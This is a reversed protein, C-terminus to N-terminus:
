SRRHSSTLARQYVSETDRAIREWDYRARVLDGVSLLDEMPRSERSLALTLKHSLDRVDGTRFVLGHPQEDSLTVAEVNEPIDSVITFRDHALAELLAIPLGELTSPQVFVAANQLLWAKEAGYRPGLLLVREDRQALEEVERMYADSHSSPGVIALRFESPVHRFAEILTHAQKEPVIRGLHLVFRGPELGPVPAPEDLESLNVGNPIYTTSTNYHSNLFRELEQSVAITQNPVTAAVRAAVRLTQRATAGWKERRWDLGHVTAVTPVGLARTALSLITPGTAHFHIVDFRRRTVAHMTSLMTHSLAELHKTNIQPLTIQEVGDIEELKPDCYASRGYVSVRHGRKALERSLQEVAVEVGGYSAPLGRTGIMAISLPTSGNHRGAAYTSLRPQDERLLEHAAM